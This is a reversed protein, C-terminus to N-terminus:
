FSVEFSHTSDVFILFRIRWNSNRISTPLSKIRFAGFDVCATNTHSMTASHATASHATASHATASHGVLGHRLLMVQVHM